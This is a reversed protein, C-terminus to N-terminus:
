TTRPMSYIYTKKKENENENENQIYEYINVVSVNRLYARRMCHMGLINAGGYGKM